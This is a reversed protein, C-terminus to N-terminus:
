RVGGAIRSPQHLGRRGPDSTAGLDATGVRCFPCVVPTLRLGCSPCGRLPALRLHAVDPILAFQLPKAKGYLASWDGPMDFPRVAAPRGAQQVANSVAAPAGSAMLLVTPVTSTPVGLQGPQAAARGSLVAPSPAHRVLFSSGPVYSLLHQSIRPAPSTLGTVSTLAAASWTAELMAHVTSVGQGPEATHARTSALAAFIGLPAQESAFWAVRARPHQGQAITL